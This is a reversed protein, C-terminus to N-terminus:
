DWLMTLLLIDMFDNRWSDMSFCNKKCEKWNLFITRKAVMFALSCVHQINKSQIGDIDVGFLCVIPCLMIGNNFISNLVDVIDQWFQKVAPCYWLMHMLTGVSGCGHWCLNSVSDIKSMTKPTMYARHIIKLQIMKYRVCKSITTSNKLAANWQSESLSQGM